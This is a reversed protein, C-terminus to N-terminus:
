PMCNMPRYSRSAIQAQIAMVRQLDLVRAVELALGRVLRGIGRVEAVPRRDQRRAAIRVPREVIELPAFQTEPGGVVLAKAPGAVDRDPRDPSVVRRLGVREERATDGEARDLDCPPLLRPICSLRSATRLRQIEVVAARLRELAVAEDIDCGGVVDSDPLSDTRPDLEFSYLMKSLLSSIRHFVDTFGSGALGSSASPRGVPYM